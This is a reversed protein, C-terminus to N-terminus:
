KLKNKLNNLQLEDREEKGINQQNFKNVKNKNSKIIHKTTDRTNFECIIDVSYSSISDLKSGTFTLIRKEHPLISGNLPPSFVYGLINKYRDYAKISINYSLCTDDSVNQIMLYFTNNKVYENKIINIKSDPYLNIYDCVVSINDKVVIITDSVAIQKDGLNNKNKCMFYSTFCVLIIFSLIMVRMSNKHGM